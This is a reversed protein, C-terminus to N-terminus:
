APLPPASITTSDSLRRMEQPVRWGMRRMEKILPVAAADCSVCIGTPKRVVSLLQAVIGSYMDQEVQEGANCLSPIVIVDGDGYGCEEAARVFGQERVSESCIFPSANVPQSVYALTTHGQSRLFRVVGSMAAIETSPM